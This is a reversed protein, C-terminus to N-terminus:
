LEELYKSRPEPIDGPPDLLKEGASLNRFVQFTVTLFPSLYIYVQIDAFIIRDHGTHFRRFGLDCQVQKIFISICAHMRGTLTLISISTDSHIVM